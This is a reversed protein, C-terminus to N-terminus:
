GRGIRMGEDALALDGLDALKHLPLLRRHNDEVIVERGRLHTNQALFEAHLHEVAASEDEIDEGHTRLGSRSFGLYLQRLVAIHERTQM